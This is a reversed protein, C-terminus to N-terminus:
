DHHQVDFVFMEFLEQNINVAANFKIRVGGCHIVGSQYWVRFQFALGATGCGAGNVM